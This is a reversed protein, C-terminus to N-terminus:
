ESTAICVYYTEEDVFFFCCKSRRGVLFTDGPDYAYPTDDLMFDGKGRVISVQAEGEMTSCAFERGAALRVLVATGRGGPPSLEVFSMGSGGAASEDFATDLDIGEVLAGIDALKM